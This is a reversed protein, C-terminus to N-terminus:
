LRCLFSLLLAGVMGLVSAAKCIGPIVYQTVVEDEVPHIKNLELLTEYMWEFQSRETFIDSILLVQPLSFM